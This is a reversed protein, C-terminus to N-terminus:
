AHMLDSSTTPMCRAMQVRHWGSPVAQTEGVCPVFCSNCDGLVLLEGRFIPLRPRGVTLNGVVSVKIYDPGM